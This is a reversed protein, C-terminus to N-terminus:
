YVSFAYDPSLLEAQEFASLGLAPIQDEIENPVGYMLSYKSSWYLNVDEIENYMVTGKKATLKEPDDTYSSCTLLPKIIGSLM